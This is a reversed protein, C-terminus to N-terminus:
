EVAQKPGNGARQDEFRRHRQERGAGCVQLAHRNPADAADVTDRQRTCLAIRMGMVM